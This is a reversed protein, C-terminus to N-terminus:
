EPGLRPGTKASGWVTAWRSKTVSKSAPLCLEESKSTPVILLRLDVIQPSVQMRSRHTHQETQNCLVM